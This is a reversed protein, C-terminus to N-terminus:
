RNTIPQSCLRNSVALYFGKQYAGEMGALLSGCVNKAGESCFRFIKAQLLISDDYLTRADKELFLSVKECQRQYISYNEAAKRCIADYQNIQKLFADAEGM